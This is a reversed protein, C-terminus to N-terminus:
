CSARGIQYSQLCRAHRTLLTDGKKGLVTKLVELNRKGRGFEISDHNGDVPTQRGALDGVNDVVGIGLHKHDTRIKLVGDRADKATQAREPLENSDPMM